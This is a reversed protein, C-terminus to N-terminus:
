GAAGDNDVARGVLSNGDWVMYLGGGGELASQVYRTRNAATGLVARGGANKEYAREFTSDTNIHSHGFVHVDSEVHQIQLDLEKCGMAKALDRSAGGWPVPLEARPLFHSCSFVYDGPGRKFRTAEPGARSHNLRLFFDWVSEDTFPFRCFSDHRMRGPRPDREDFEANYWSYLPVVFLGEAVEAPATDVGLEQALAEIAALKCISDPFNKDEVGPRLWMEHNGPTFFVRRFKPRLEKFAHMVANLTDGLDGALILVDDRFASSSLRRCWQINNNQDVHLDSVCFVRTRGRPFRADRTFAEGQRWEAMGRDLVPLARLVDIRGRQLAEVGDRDVRTGKCFACYAPLLMRMGFLAAGLQAYARADRGGSLDVGKQADLVAHDYQETRCYAASRMTHLSANKPDRELARSLRELEALLKDSATAAVPAVPPDWAGSSARSLAMDSASSMSSQRSHGFAASRVSTSKVIGVTSPADELDSSPAVGGFSRGSSQSPDLDMDSLSSASAYKVDAQTPSSRDSHWGDTESLGLAQCNQLGAQAEACAGDCALAEGFAEVAETTRRLRLLAAGRRCHPKPALPRLAAAEDASELAERLQQRRDSAGVFPADCLAAALHCLVVSREETGEFREETGKGLPAPPAKGADLAARYHWVARGKDGRRFAANGRERETPALDRDHEVEARLCEIEHRAEPILPGAAPPALLQAELIRLAEGYEGGLQYAKAVVLVAEPPAEGDPAGVAERAGAFDGQALLMRALRGRV